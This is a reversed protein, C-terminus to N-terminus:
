CTLSYLHSVAEEIGNETGKSRSPTQRNETGESKLDIETPSLLESIICSERWTQVPTIKPTKKEKDRKQKNKM